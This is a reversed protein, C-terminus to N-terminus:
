GFGGHRARVGCASPSTDTHDQPEGYRHAKRTQKANADLLREALAVAHRALAHGRLLAREVLLRGLDGM